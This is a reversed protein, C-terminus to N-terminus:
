GEPPPLYYGPRSRVRVGPRDVRVQIEHYGFPATGTPRYTLSYQAHLEGSIENLATEISRERITAIHAGGTATSALELANDRIPATVHQVIWAVLALLNVNGYRQQESTPTQATGPMPPLPFTGPPSIQPPTTQKPSRLEAMTSSIGVSYITVNALQADRLV